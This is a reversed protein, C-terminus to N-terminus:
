VVNTQEQLYKRNDGLSRSSITSLLECDNQLIPGSLAILVTQRISIGVCYKAEFSSSDEEM